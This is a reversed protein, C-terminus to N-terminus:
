SKRWKKNMDIAKELTTLPANYKQALTTIAKTDKPFCLGGWGRQGDPGPVSYHSTGMRPDIHVIDMLENFDEGGFSDYFDKLENLWSVKTALFSNITYKMFSAQVPSCTYLTEVATVKKFVRCWFKSNEGAFVMFKSNKFDEISNSATLFEPSFTFQGTIFEEAFQPTITSKILVPTNPNLRHIKEMYEYILNHDVRGDLHTPAPLCLVIGNVNYKVLEDEYGKDPDIIFTEHELSLAAYVAKGVFGFGIVTFMM